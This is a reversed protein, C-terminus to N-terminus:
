RAVVPELVARWGEASPVNGPRLVCRELDGFQNVVFLPHYCPCGFHGNYASGEQEGFTPSVSSDMDLGVAKM